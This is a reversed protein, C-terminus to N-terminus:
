LLGSWEASFAGQLSGAEQRVENGGIEDERM